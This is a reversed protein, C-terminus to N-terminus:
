KRVKRENEGQKRREPKKKFLLESSVILRWKLRNKRFMKNRKMEKREKEKQYRWKLRNKRLM